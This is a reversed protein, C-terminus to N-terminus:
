SLSWSAIWPAAFETLISQKTASAGTRLRMANTAPLSPKPCPILRKHRQLIPDGWGAVDDRRPMASHEGAIAADDMIGRRFCQRPAPRAPCPKGAQAVEPAPPALHHVAPAPGLQKKEILRGRERRPVARAKEAAALVGVPKAGGPFLAIAERINARAVNVGHKMRLPERGSLLTQM